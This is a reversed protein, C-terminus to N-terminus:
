IYWLVDLCKKFCVILCMSVGNKENTLQVFFRIGPNTKHGYKAFLVSIGLSGFNNTM